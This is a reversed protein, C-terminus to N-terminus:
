KAWIEVRARGGGPLNRYRFDIFRVTREGGPFDIVHTRQGEKFFHKIAPHWPAGKAFKVEFDILELDSDLVVLTLKEFKGEHRGVEIRDHDIKGNVEREGLKVWGQSDWSFPAAPTRAAAEAKWGWVEVRARGGGPLNRYRLDISKLVREDGPLDIVRTRAGEKFFHQVSPHFHEKNAFTIDFDLLELDSDEVYLTLRTFKGEHRGIEIRDHDVRGNVVREGLKTWGRSDWREARASGGGAVLAILAVSWLLIKMKMTLGKGRPTSPTNRNAISRNFFQSHAGDRLQTVCQFSRQRLREGRRIKVVQQSRELRRSSRCESAANGHSAVTALKGGHHDL